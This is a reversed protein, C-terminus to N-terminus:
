LYKIRVQSAWIKEGDKDYAFKCSPSGSNWNDDCENVRFGGKWGIKRSEEYYKSPM